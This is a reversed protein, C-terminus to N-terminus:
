YYLNLKEVNIVYPNIKELFKDIDENRYPIEENLAYLTVQYTHQHNDKHCPGYYGLRRKSNIGQIIKTTDSFNNIDRPLDMMDKNIYPLFLHVFNVTIDIITLVYQQVGIIPTWELSMSIDKGGHERCLNETKIGDRLKSM